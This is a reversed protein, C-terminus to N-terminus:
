SSLSDLAPDQPNLWIIIIIIFFAPVCVFLNTYGCLLWLSPLGIVLFPTKPGSDTGSLLLLVSSPASKCVVTAWSFFLFILLFDRNFHILSKVPVSYVTRTNNLKPKQFETILNEWIVRICTRPSLTVDVWSAWILFFLINNLYTVATLEINSLGNLWYM